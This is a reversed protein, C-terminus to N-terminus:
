RGAGKGGLWEGLADLREGWYAKRREADAPSALRTHTVAVSSRAPGKATFWCEVSTGDPWTIRLSRDPTATRVVLKPEPLWRRRQKPDHWAAFLRAVPVALTRSRGAEWAGSRRQGIARLGKIREYGVTVMQCWWEGVRYTTHLHEAIERHEWEHAKVRDLVYVWKEWRCGTKAEVAADSMGALSAYDAAVASRPSPTSKKAAM